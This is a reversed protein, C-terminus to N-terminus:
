FVFRMLQSLRNELGLWYWLFMAYYETDVIGNMVINVSLCDLLGVTFRSLQIRNIYRVFESNQGPILVM